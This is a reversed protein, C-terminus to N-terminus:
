AAEVLAQRVHDVQSEVAAEELRPIEVDDGLRETGEADRLIRPARAEGAPLGPLGSGEEPPQEGNGARDHPGAVDELAADARGPEGDHSLKEVGREAHRAASWSPRRM